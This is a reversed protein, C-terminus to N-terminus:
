PFVVGFLIRFVLVTFVMIVATWLVNWLSLKGTLYSMTGFLFLPTAIYFGLGMLMLVCYIVVAGSMVLVEKPFAYRIGDKIKKGRRSKIGGPPTKKFHNEALLTLSLITWLISMGLPLAAASASRPPEMTLWLRLSHCFFFVGALFLLYTFLKEGAKLVPATKQESETNDKNMKGEM